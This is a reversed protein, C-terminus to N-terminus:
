PRGKFVTENTIITVTQNNQNGSLLDIRGDENWDGAALTRPGDPSSVAVTFRKEGAGFGGAGDGTLVYVTDNTFSAVVLDLDGDGNIDVALVDRPSALPAVLTRGVFNAKPDTAGPAGLFLSINNSSTNAVAFDPRGDHNFDGITVSRPTGQTTFAEPVFFAGDGFGHLVSVSNALSNTVVLDLAGDLDIDAVAIGHAGKGTKFEGAFTWIDGTRNSTWVEACGCTFSTFAIDPNGDQNFDAAVVLRPDGGHSTLTQTVVFGSGAWTLITVMSSDASTVVLDARGDHNFDASAIGFPGAPLAVTGNIHLSGDGGGLYVVLESTGSNATAFDLHGDGNFDATVVGRPNAGTAVAHTHFQPNAQAGASRAILLIALAAGLFKM